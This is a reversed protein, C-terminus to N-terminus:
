RQNKYDFFNIVNNPSDKIKSSLIKKNNKKLVSLGMSFASDPENTALYILGHAITNVMEFEDITMNKSNKNDISCSFGNNTPSLHIKITKTKDIELNTKMKKINQLKLQM